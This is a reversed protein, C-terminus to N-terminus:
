VCNVYSYMVAESKEDRSYLNEYHRLLYLFRVGHTRNGSILGILILLNSVFM